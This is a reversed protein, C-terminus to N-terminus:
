DDKSDNEEDDVEEDSRTDAAGAGMVVRWAVRCIMWFWIIQLVELATLMVCFTWHARQTLYYGNEPDFRFPVYVPLQRITSHLVITYLIHRSVLWSLMFFGFTSDTYIQPLSLYRMMKAMPLFIDCWDMLLMIFCGVRTFNTYYSLFLLFVTIAHHTMMQWHDKRRAEANLVLVQHIYNATQLLYYFKVPGALAIHPYSIWLPKLNFITHPLNQHVYLGYASAFTYYVFPWGQEAFRMVSRQVQRLERKSPKSVAFGNARGESHGNAHGNTYGNAKGNAQGNSHGNGNGNTHGNTHGNAHGNTNHGNGNGNSHGNTHGNAHGNVHGNAHGNSHGNAYGNSKASANARKIELNRMLKWRAFPEAVCLRLVDRLIALVAIIVVITVLDLPGVLYYKSDPFSDTKSPTQIPYQLTTLLSIYPRLQDMTTPFM